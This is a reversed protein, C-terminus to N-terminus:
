VVHSAFNINKLRLYILANILGVIGIGLEIIGLLRQDFFYNISGLIFLSVVGVMTMIIFLWSEHKNTMNMVPETRSTAYHM